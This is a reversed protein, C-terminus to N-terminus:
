RSKRLIYVAQNKYSQFPNFLDKMCGLFKILVIRTLSLRITHGSLVISFVSWGTSSFMSTYGESSSSTKAAVEVASCRSGSDGSGECVDVPFLFWDSLNTSDIGVFKSLFLALIHHNWLFM